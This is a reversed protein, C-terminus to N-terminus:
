GLSDTAIERLAQEPDTESTRRVREAMAASDFRAASRLAQKRVGVDSEALLVDAIGGASDEGLNRLSAAAAVRVSTDASVAATAVIAAAEDDPILSALYTAKAALMPDDGRVLEALHPLADPGLGAASTYNPEDPDLCARVDRMTITM